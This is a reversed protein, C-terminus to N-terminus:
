RAELLELDADIVPQRERGVRHRLKLAVVGEAGGEHAAEHRLVEVDPHAAALLARAAAQVMVVVVVEIHQQPAPLGKPEVARGVRLPSHAKRRSAKLRM